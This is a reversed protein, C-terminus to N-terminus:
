WLVSNNSFAVVKEYAPSFGLEHPSLVFPSYSPIQHDQPLHIEPFLSGEMDAAAGMTTGVIMVNAGPQPEKTADDVVVGAIKGTTGAWGRKETSFLILCVILFLGVFYILRKNIQM